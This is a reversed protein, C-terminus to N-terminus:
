ILKPQLKGRAEWGARYALHEEGFSDNTFDDNENLECGLLAKAEWERFSESIEPEEEGVNDKIESNIKVKYVEPLQNFYEGM